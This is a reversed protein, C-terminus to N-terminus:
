REMKRRKKFILGDLGVIKGTPFALLTGLAAMEILIKNVILYSGESPVTYSYGVFPPNCVYYILLLLIGAVCAWSTLLGTILALGITIQGWINLFDMVKLLAPNDAVATFLGSFLWKTESLYGASTWYPNLLKAIGEYLFHWGILMRLFVLMFAQFTSYKRAQESHTLSDGKKM